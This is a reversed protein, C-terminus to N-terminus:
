PTPMSPLSGDGALDGVRDDGLDLGGAALRDGDGAVDRRHGAACAITSAPSPCTRAADVAHDADGADQALPHQEVHGLVLEVVDHANVELAREGDEPAAAATIRM